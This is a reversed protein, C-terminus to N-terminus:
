LHRRLMMKKLYELLLKSKNYIKTKSLEEVSLYSSNGSERHLKLSDTSILTNDLDFFIADFDIKM